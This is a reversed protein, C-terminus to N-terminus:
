RRGSCAGPTAAGIPLSLRAPDGGGWHVGLVYPPATIALNDADATQLALRVRHGKAFRYAIPQLDLSLTVAEGSRLPQLATRRHDHFPLGLANYPAVAPARHSARLAGESVYRVRGDPAVDELLAVIEADDRAQASVAIRLTPHGIVELPIELPATTFVVGKRDNAALDPYVGAGIVGNWRSDRGTTASLDAAKRVIGSAAARGTSLEGGAALFLDQRAGGVEWASRPTWACFGDFDMLALHVGPERDVGTDRGRVWRDFWRAAEVGPDLDVDAKTLLRHRWPRVTVRRPGQLNAYLLLTDRTFIDNWGAELYIPTRGAKIRPLLPYLSMGPWTLGDATPPDDLFARTRGLEAVRQSFGEGRRQKRAADLAGEAGTVPTALGDLQSTLLVYPTNFGTDRIGGRYGVARYADLATSAGYVAKLAPRGQASAAVAIMATFSQGYMGVRGDSWPQATIWDIMLAAEHGFAEFSTPPTGFSAGTGSADAAVVVYGQRLLRGVWPRMRAQDVVVEGGSTLSMLKLMTRSAPTLGLMAADTVTGDRVVTMARNYITHEYLVPLPRAEVQGRRTPRLVDVALRRGGPLDVYTSTRVYGDYPAPTAPCYVGFRSAPAACSDARHAFWAWALGGGIALVVVGGLFMWVKM